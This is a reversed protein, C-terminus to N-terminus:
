HGLLQDVSAGIDPEAMLREGVLIADVGAEQLRLVDDRSHIGSEGVLLCEDPIRQRMRLTHELDVEFSRLDRNNVGILTAGADLVRSLNEPEYFEVLPTLGLDIAHHHLKRLHCDDLCEAILLVADAGAV